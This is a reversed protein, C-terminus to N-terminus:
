PSYLEDMVFAWPPPYLYLEVKEQVEANSPLPLRWPGAAKVRTFVWYVNHLLSPPGTQVSASFIAEVPIRDRFTWGTALRQVSQAIGAWV